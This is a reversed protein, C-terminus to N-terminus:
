GSTLRCRRVADGLRLPLRHAAANAMAYPHLNLNSVLALPKFPICRQVVQFVLAKLVRPLTLSIHEVQVASGLPKHHHQQRDPIAECPSSSHRARTAACSTIFRTPDAAMMTLHYTM